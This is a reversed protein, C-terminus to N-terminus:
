KSPLARTTGLFMSLLIGALHYIQTPSIARVVSRLEDARRIDLDYYEGDGSAICFGSLTRGWLDLEM